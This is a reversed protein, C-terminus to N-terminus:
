EIGQDFGFVQGSALDTASKKENYHKDAEKQAESRAMNIKEMFLPMFGRFNNRIEEIRM